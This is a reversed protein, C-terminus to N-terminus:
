GFHKLFHRACDARSNVLHTAPCGRQGCAFRGPSRGVLPFRHVELGAREALHVIVPPDQAVFDFRAFAFHRGVNTARAGDARDVARVQAGREVM